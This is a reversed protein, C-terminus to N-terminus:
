VGSHRDAPRFSSAIRTLLMAQQLTANMALLGERPVLTRITVTQAPIFFTSVASIAFLIAYIENLQGALVLLLALGARILDSAVMTRKPNWRDVLVGALPGFLALPLMYSITIGTIQSPTGHLRFSAITLVAFIALFDGAISILQGAWLRAVGPILLIETFRKSAPQATNSM